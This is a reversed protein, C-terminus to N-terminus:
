EISKRKSRSRTQPISPGKSEGREVKVKVRVTNAATAAATSPATAATELKCELAAKDATSVIGEVATSIRDLMEVPAPVPPVAACVVSCEEEKFLEKSELAPTCVATVMCDGATAATAATAATCANPAPTLLLSRVAPATRKKKVVVPSSFDLAKSEDMEVRKKGKGKGKSSKNSVSIASIEVEIEAKVKIDPTIISAKTKRTKTEKKLPSLLDRVLSSSPSEVKVEVDTLLVAGRALHPSEELEIMRDEYFV